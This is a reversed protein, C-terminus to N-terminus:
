DDEEANTNGKDKGKGKGQGNGNEGDDDEEEPPECVIQVALRDVAALLPRELEPAVDGNEVAAVASDRLEATRQAAGCGDGAELSAAIKDSARALEEALAARISPAAAEETTGNPASDGADGGCAALALAGALAGARSWWARHVGRVM